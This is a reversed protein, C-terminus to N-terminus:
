LQHTLELNSLVKAADYVLSAKLHHLKQVQQKFIPDLASETEALEFPLEEPQQMHNASNLLIKGSPM